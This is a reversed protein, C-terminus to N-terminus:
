GSLSVTNPEGHPWVDESSRVAMMDTLAWIQACADVVWKLDQWLQCM